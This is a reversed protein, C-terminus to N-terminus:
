KDRRIPRLWFPRSPQDDQGRGRAPQGGRDAPEAPAPTAPNPKPGAASRQRASV